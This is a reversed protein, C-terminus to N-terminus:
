QSDSPFLSLHLIPDCVMSPRLPLLPPSPRLAPPRRTRQHWRRAPLSTRHLHSDVCHLRHRLPSAPPKGDSAAGRLSRIPSYRHPTVASTFMTGLAPRGGGRYIAPLTVPPWWGHLTPHGRDPRSLLVWFTTPGLQHFILGLMRRRSREDNEENKLKKSLVKM